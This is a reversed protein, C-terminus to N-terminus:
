NIKSRNGAFDAFSTLHIDDNVQVDIKRLHGISWVPWFTVDNRWFWDFNLEFWIGDVQKLFVFDFVQSLIWNFSGAKAKRRVVIMEPASRFPDIVHSSLRSAAHTMRSPRSSPGTPPATRHWQYGLDNFDATWSIFFLVPGHGHM